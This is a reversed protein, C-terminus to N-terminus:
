TQRYERSSTKKLSTTNEYGIINDFIDKSDKLDDYIDKVTFEKNRKKIIDVILDKQKTKYSM